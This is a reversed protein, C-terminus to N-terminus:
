PAWPVGQCSVCARHVILVLGFSTNAAKTEHVIEWKVHETGRGNICNWHAQDHKQEEDKWTRARAKNRQNLTNREKAKATRGAIKPRQKPNLTSVFWGLEKM